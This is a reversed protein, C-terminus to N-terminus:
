DDTGFGGSVQQQHGVFTAQIHAQGIRQALFALAPYYHMGRYFYKGL